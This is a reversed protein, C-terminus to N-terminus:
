YATTKQVALLNRRTIGWKNRRDVWAHLDVYGIELRRWQGPSRTEVSLLLYSEILYNYTRRQPFTQIARYRSNRSRLSNVFEGVWLDM